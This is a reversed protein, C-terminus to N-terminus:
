RETVAATLRRVFQLSGAFIREADNDLTAVHYSNDLVVEQVDVSSVRSLVLRASAPEVVHDDRSRFLLLPQTIKPLDARLDRWARTISYAAQLPLRDYGLEVSAPKKIDGIIGPSSPVVWRLLPVAYRRPDLTTLFPNVVVLGAVEPGRLEALRLALAGGMSLGMAFVHDCRDRLKAFEREVAGYWDQWTTLNCDQWRTGHGPLRPLSVTLGHLALHEAWPRLSQPTSTFGHCLVTGVPGGDHHFPEAGPMVPV